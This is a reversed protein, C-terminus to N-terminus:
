LLSDDKGSFINKMRVKAKEDRWSDLVKQVKELDLDKWRVGGSVVLKHAAVLAEKEVVEKSIEATNNPHIQKQLHHFKDLLTAMEPSYVEKVPTIFEWCLCNIAEIYILDRQAELVYRRILHRVDLIAYIAVFLAGVGVLM